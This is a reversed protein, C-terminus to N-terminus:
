VHARGIKKSTNNKRIQALYEEPVAFSVWIPEVQNIVILTTSNASVINGPHVLLNGVRGTIPAHIQTYDLDIRNRALLARDNDLSARASEISAQDARISARIAEAAAAAQDRQQRPGVGQKFLDEYRAADAEVSKSQAVDRALTAEAQALVANDRQIAAEAQRITERIPRSDIEFLLDGKNVTGGETFNVRLLEGGIQSKVQIVSSAEATGIATVEVPVQTVSATGVSVPTPPPPGAAKTPAADKKCACVFLLSVTLLSFRFSM